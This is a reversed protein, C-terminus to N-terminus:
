RLPVPDRSLYTSLQCARTFRHLGLYPDSCTKLNNLQMNKFQEAAEELFFFIINVTYKKRYFRVGSRKVTYDGHIQDFNDQKENAM